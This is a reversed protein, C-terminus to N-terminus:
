RSEEYAARPRSMVFDAAGLWNSLHLAALATSRSVARAPKSLHLGM